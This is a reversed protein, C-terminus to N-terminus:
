NKLKAITFLAAAFVPTRTETNYASNCQKPYMDQPIMAPDYQLKIKLTKFFM